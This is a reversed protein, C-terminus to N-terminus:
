RCENCRIKENNGDRRERARTRGDLWDIGEEGEMGNWEMGEVEGVGGGKEYEEEGEEGGNRRGEM